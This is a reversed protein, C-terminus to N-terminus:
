VDAWINRDGIEAKIDLGTECGLEICDEITRIASSIERHFRLQGDTSFVEGRFHLTDRALTALAAIPTRCSGDLAQLFARETVIAKMSAFHNLPEVADRIATDNERLEIGIAGQAPANLMADSDLIERAVDEKGLRKLGALALFTGDCAGAKLKTLRTGVNGRLLTFRIDPRKHSLQARRRLSATGVVAQRPLSMVTEFRDSIFADRPDERELIASIALGDQRITPVDKMSHVAIDVRESLLADELEKTFLGKGGFESLDGKLKDGSTRFIHIPLATELDDQDLKLHEALKSQV